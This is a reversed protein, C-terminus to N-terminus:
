SRIIQSVRQHSIDLAAPIDEMKLTATNEVQVRHGVAHLYGKVHLKEGDLTVSEFVFTVEPFEDVDFFDKSRLHDDRKQQRPQHHEGRRHPHDDAGLLPGDERYLRRLAGEGHLAGPLHPGQVPGALPRSRAEMADRSIESADIPPTSSEM